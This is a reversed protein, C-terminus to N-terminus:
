KEWECKRIVKASLLVGSPVKIGLRRAVSLNVVPQGRLTAEMPLDSPKKGDVLIARALKGAESGQARASVTMACLLGQPVRSAWFSVNPLPVEECTWRMVTEIPVNQGAHDKLTYVGLTIIADAEGVCARAKEQYEAYTDVTHFAVIHIGLESSLQEQLARVREIVPPWTEAKDSLVAIRRVGPVIGALLRITQSIHERELIGTVNPAQDFGYTAPDANVGSFVFPIDGGVYDRVVASQVFDDSTYVLDPKWTDIAQRAEATARAKWEPSTQRRVDMEVVKYEVEVGALSEKFADLQALTWESWDSDYSMIHLVRYPAGPVRTSHKVSAGDRTAPSTGASVSGPLPKISWFAVSGTLAALCGLMSIAKRGNM